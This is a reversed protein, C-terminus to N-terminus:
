GVVRGRPQPTKGPKARVVAQCARARTTTAPPLDPGLDAWRTDPDPPPLQRTAEQPHSSGIPGHRIGRRESGYVQDQRL